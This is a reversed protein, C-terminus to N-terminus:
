GLVHFVDNPVHDLVGLSIPVLATESAATSSSSQQPSSVAKWHNVRKGVCDVYSKGKGGSKGAGKKGMGKQGKRVPWFGRFKARETLRRRADQYSSFYTALDVDNQVAETVLAADDDNESGPQALTEDDLPDDSVWYNPIMNQKM